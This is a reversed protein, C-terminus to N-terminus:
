KHSFSSKGRQCAGAMFFFLQLNKLMYASIMCSIICLAISLFSRFRINKQDGHMSDAKALSCIYTM